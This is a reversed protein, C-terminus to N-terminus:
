RKVEQKVEDAPLPDSFILESPRNQLRELLRGLQDSTQRLSRLLTETQNSVRRSRQDLRDSLRGLNDVVRGAQDSKEALKMARIEDQLAAILKRADALGSRTESLIEDVTGQAMMVDIKKMTRNLSVASIELNAITGALRPNTFFRDISRAAGKLENSIGEFDVTRIREYIDALGAMIQKIDSSRSSILPYEVEFSLTPGLVPETKERRDLEIFVIGTIGASKLQAVVDEEIVGKVQIKMVVEVLRNDPAVRIKMV